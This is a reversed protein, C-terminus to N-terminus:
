AISLGHRGPLEFDSQRFFVNSGTNSDDREKVGVVDVKQGGTASLAQGRKKLHSACILVRVAQWASSVDDFMFAPRYKVDFLM